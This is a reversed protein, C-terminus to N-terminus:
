KARFCSDCFHSSNDRDILQIKKLFDETKAYPLSPTSLKIAQIRDWISQLKTYYALVKMVEQHITTITHRLDYVRPDNEKWFREELGVWIDRNTIVHKVNNKIEKEM